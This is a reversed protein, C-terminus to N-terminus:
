ETKGSFTHFNVWHWMSCYCTKTWHYVCFLKWFYPFNPQLRCFMPVLIGPLIHFNSLNAAQSQQTICYKLRSKCCGKIVSARPVKKAPGGITVWQEATKCFQQSLWVWCKWKHGVDSNSSWGMSTFLKDTLEGFQKSNSKGAPQEIFLQQLVFPWLSAGWNQGLGKVGRLWQFM